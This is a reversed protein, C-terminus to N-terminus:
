GCAEEDLWIVRTRGEHGHIREVEAIGDYIGLSCPPKTWCMVVRGDSFEVGEVIRGTGSVGTADECRDLVFRRM